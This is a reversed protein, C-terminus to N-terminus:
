SSTQGGFACSQPELPPHKRPHGRRRSRGPDVGIDRLSFAFLHYMRVAHNIIEVPFRHRPIAPRLKDLL